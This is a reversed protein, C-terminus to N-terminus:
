KGLRNFLRSLKVGRGLARGACKFAKLRFGTVPSSQRYRCGLWRLAAHGDIPRKRDRNEYGRDGRATGSAAGAMMAALREGGHQWSTAGRETRRLRPIWWCVELEM